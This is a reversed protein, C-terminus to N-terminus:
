AITHKHKTSFPFAWVSMRKPHRDTARGIDVLERGEAYYNDWGCFGEELVISTVIRRRCIFAMLKPVEAYHTEGGTEEIAQAHWAGFCATISPFM